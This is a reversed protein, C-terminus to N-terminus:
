KARWWTFDDMDVTFASTVTTLNGAWRILDIGQVSLADVDDWNCWTKYGGSPTVGVASASIDIVKTGDIWMRAIGDRSGPSTNPKYQYTFRHWQGNFVDVPYPGVPQNAQCSTEGGDDYVQWVSYGGPHDYQCPLHDHTNWQVRNGDRHFAMFWKFALVTNTLSGAVTVRAYYQFYQTTSDPTTPMNILDWTHTDQNAGSYYQRLAQGSGGYGPSIIANSPDGGFENKWSMASGSYSQMAAVTSYSDMNDSFMMVGTSSNFSPEGAPPPPPNVIPGNVTVTATGSKGSATARITTSGAGIATVLGGVTVTAISTSTSSWTVSAGSMLKGYQDKVTAALQTTGQINLTVSSPSVTVTTVVPPPANVTMQASGTVGGATARITTSGAAVATANGTSNITAVGTSTSSWTVTRGTLVNGASDRVSAAFQTRQGITDTVPTPTVVVSAVTAPPPATATTVVVVATGSKGSTTATITASGASVGAVVGATDVRAIGTASSSWSVPQGNMVAGNQDKVTAALQKTGGITLTDPTPAVTVTTVTSAPPAVSPMTTTAVNSLQGFVASQTNLTGRFAVLQFDYTTAATLGTVTCHVTTGIAGGTLPTKCTGAAVSTASGWSISHVAYRVEYNAAAGTGDNVATFSLAAVSDNNAVAALDSVTGPTNATPGSVAVPTAGLVGASSATITASGSSRGTTTGTTDVAAVSPASSLWVVPRGTIIKDSSDRLTATYQVAQGVSLTAADPSISISAIADGLGTTPADASVSDVSATLRTHGVGVWRVRGTSDVRLITSDRSHWRVHRGTVVAGLRDYLTASFQMTHGVSDSASAPSITLTAPAGSVPTGSVTGSIYSPQTSDATCSAIAIAVACSTLVIGLRAVRARIAPQM